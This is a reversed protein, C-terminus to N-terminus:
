FYFQIFILRAGYQRQCQIALPGAIIQAREVSPFSYQFSGVSVEVQRGILHFGYSLLQAYRIIYIDRYGLPSRLVPVASLAPEDIDFEVVTSRQYRRRGYIRLRRFWAAIDYPICAVSSVAN